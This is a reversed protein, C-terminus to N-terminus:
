SISLLNKKMGLVYYVNKLHVQDNGFHPSIIAKEIHTILFRLNNATVVVWIAKYKITSELREKDGTM